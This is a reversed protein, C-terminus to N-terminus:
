IKKVGEQDYKLVASIFAKVYINFFNACVAANCAVLLSQEQYQPVEEPLLNDIDIDSGALFKV